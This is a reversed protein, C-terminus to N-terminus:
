HRPRIAAELDRTLRLYCEAKFLRQDELHYQLEERSGDSDDVLLALMLREVAQEFKHRIEDLSAGFAADPHGRKLDDFLSIFRKHQRRNLESCLIGSPVEDQGAQLQKEIADLDQRLQNIIDDNTEHDQLFLISRSFSSVFQEACFTVGQRAFVDVAAGLAQNLREEAKLLGAKVQDAREPRESPIHKLDFLACRPGSKELSAGLSFSALLMTFLVTRIVTM